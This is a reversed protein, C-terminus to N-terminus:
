VYVQMVPFARAILMEESNTLDSLELPVSCPDM